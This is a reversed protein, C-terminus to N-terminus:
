DSNTDIDSNDFEISLESIIKNIDSGMRKNNKILVSIDINPNSLESISLLKTICKINSRIVDLIDINIDIDISILKKEKDIKEEDIKKEDIKKEDIKKEYIEDEDTDDTDYEDKKKHPEINLLKNDGMLKNFVSLLFLHLYNFFMIIYYLIITQVNWVGM